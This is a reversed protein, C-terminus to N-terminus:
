QVLGPALHDPMLHALQVRRQRCSEGLDQLVADRPLATWRDKGSQELASLIQQVRAETFRPDTFPGGPGSVRKRIAEHLLLKVAVVIM